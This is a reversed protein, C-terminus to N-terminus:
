CIVRLSSRRDCCLWWAIASRVSRVRGAIAGTAASFMATYQGAGKNAPLRFLRDLAIAHTHSEVLCDGIVVSLDIPVIELIFVQYLKKASKFNGLCNQM